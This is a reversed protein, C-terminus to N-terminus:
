QNIQPDQPAENNNNDPSKKLQVSNNSTNSLSSTGKALTLVKAVYETSSDLQNGFADVPISLAQSVNSIIRIFEPVIQIALLMRLKFSDAKDKPLM